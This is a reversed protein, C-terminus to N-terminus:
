LVPPPLGVIAANVVHRFRRAPKASTARMEEDLLYRKKEAQKSLRIRGNTCSHPDKSLLRVESPDVKALRQVNGAVAM